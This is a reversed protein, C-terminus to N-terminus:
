VKSERIVAVRLDNVNTGTTGTELLTGRERLYPLADNRALAGRAGAADDVTEGDVLAGAVDTGGDRGDTDVAGVVASEGDVTLTLAASLAYELNPGGDGDGSVTVTTEGGSVVVAPPEVPNGTAAAEEAVAAKTKAAERAEGRIRSSLVCVEYGREKAEERAASVATFGDAVVHNTVLSFVPDGTGPTEPVDGQEGALLRERVAVPADVGYRDLVSLAEGFTSDDPATPGSAIVSLDDGVVDSLAIGVVTAPEALRALGGGKLTSIHKRVANIEGIDAGASLLADTTERVDELSVGEAPSPLIASAGGTVVVLLLTREDADAVLEAIRKTSEVGTEDPVPHSGRLREIRGGETPDTDVVAGASIREGLLEELADAVTDGAKGGGVVVVDDHATLDYRGDGVVLTDGEVAVADAVVRHPHAAEIGAGLCSLATEHAESAALANRRDFM